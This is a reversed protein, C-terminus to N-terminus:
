AQQQSFKTVIWVRFGLANQMDPSSQLLLQPWQGFVLCFPARWLAAFIRGLLGELSHRLVSFNSRLPPPQTSSAPCSGLALLVLAGKLIERAYCDCDDLCLWRRAIKVHGCPM